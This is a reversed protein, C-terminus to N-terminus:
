YKYESLLEDRIIQLIAVFMENPLTNFKPEPFGNDFIIEHNVSLLLATKAKQNQKFKELLGRYVLEYYSDTFLEIREGNWTIFPEESLKKTKKKGKMRAKYGELIAVSKQQELTDFKIAQVFSEGSNFTIGEFSFPTETFNSLWYGISDNENAINIVYDHTLKSM